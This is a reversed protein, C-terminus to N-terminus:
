KKLDQVSVNPRTYEAEFLDRNTGLGNNPGRTDGEDLLNEGSGYLFSAVECTLKILEGTVQSLRVYRNHRDTKIV